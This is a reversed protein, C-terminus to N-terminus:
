RKPVIKTPSLELKADGRLSYSPIVLDAEDEEVVPYPVGARYAFRLDVSGGDRYSTEQRLLHWSQADITLRLSQVSSEESKPALTVIYVRSSDLALPGRLAARYRTLDPLEWSFANPLSQLYGPANPFDLEHEDPARYSYTGKLTERYPIPGVRLRFGFRATADLESVQERAQQVRELVKQADLPPAAASAPHAMLLLAGFVALLLAELASLPGARRRVATAARLSGSRPAARSDMPRLSNM